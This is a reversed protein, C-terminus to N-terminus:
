ASSATCSAQSSSAWARQALAAMPYQDREGEGVAGRGHVVGEVGKSCGSCGYRELDTANHGGQGAGSRDVGMHCCGIAPGFSGECTEGGIVAALASTM